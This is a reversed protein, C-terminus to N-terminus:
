SYIRMQDPLKKASEPDDYKQKLHNVDLNTLVQNSILENGLLNWAEQQKPPLQDFEYFPADVSAIMGYIVWWRDYLMKGTIM